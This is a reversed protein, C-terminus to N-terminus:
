HPYHAAARNLWDGDPFADDPENDVKYRTYAAFYEPLKTADPRDPAGQSPGRLFVFSNGRKLCSVAEPTSLHHKSADDSCALSVNFLPDSIEWKGDIWAEVTVHTQDPDDGALYRTGALQVIRTRIGLSDLAFSYAASAGGCAMQDLNTNLSAYLTAYKARPLSEKGASVGRYIYDRVSLLAEREDIKGKFPLGADRRVVEGDFEKLQQALAENKQAEKLAIFTLCATSAALICIACCILAIRWNRM